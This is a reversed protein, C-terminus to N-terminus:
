VSGIKGLRYIPETVPAEHVTLDQVIAVRRVEAINQVQDVYYRKDTCTDVVVDTDKAYPCVVMRITFSFPERVGAGDQTQQEDRSAPSFTMWASYPGHYGPERGTGYCYKCASDLIDGTVPDKCHTCLPGFTSRLWLEGIIGSMSRAQLIEKRMLEKAILFERRPLDGYPKRVDSVYTGKSTTLRVRFYLVQDKNIYKPETSAWLFQNVITPSIAVWGEDPAPALEVVSNWPLPDNFLPNMYWRFAFGDAYGPFIELKIIPTGM